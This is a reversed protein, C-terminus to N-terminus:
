LESIKQQRQRHAALTSPFKSQVRAIIRQRTAASQCCGGNLTAPAQSSAGAEPGCQASAQVSSALFLVNTMPSAHARRSSTNVTTM